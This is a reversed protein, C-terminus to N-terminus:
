HTILAEEKQEIEEIPMPPPTTAMTWGIWGGIALIGIFGIFVPVGILWIQIDKPNIWGFMVSPFALVITYWVAVVLCVVFILWGLTQDKSAVNIM